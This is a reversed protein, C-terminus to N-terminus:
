RRLSLIFEALDYMEDQTLHHNPMMPPASRLWAVIGRISQEPRSAIARFSPVGAPGQKEGQGENMHCRACLTDALARGKENGAASAGATALLVAFSVWAAKFVSARM